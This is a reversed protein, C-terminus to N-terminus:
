TENHLARSFSFHLKCLTLQRLEQSQNQNMAREEGHFM